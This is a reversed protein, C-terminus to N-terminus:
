KKVDGQPMHRRGDHQKKMGQRKRMEKRFKDGNHKEMNYMKQIQKPSLFKRFENYYKERVDLIKRSQAFRAKIVQEVEADTPLPKPTQKDAATRNAINRYAGMHRTARMEEMYQKYVPIFKATTADDLALGKIIQNCQIELMQEKNFQRREPKAGKKEQAFLTVQSGMVIAALMMLFFKTRMM